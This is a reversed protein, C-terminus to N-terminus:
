QRAWGLHRKLRCVWLSNPSGHDRGQYSMAFDGLRSGHADVFLETELGCMEKGRRRRPVRIRPHVSMGEAHADGEVALRVFGGAHHHMEVVDLGRDGIRALREVMAEQVLDLSKGQRCQLADRDPQPIRE